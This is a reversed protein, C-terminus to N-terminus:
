ATSLMRDVVADWQENVLWSRMIRRSAISEWTEDGNVATPHSEQHGIVSTVMVLAVPLSRRSHDHYSGLESVSAPVKGTGWVQKRFTQM